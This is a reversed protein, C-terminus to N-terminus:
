GVRVRALSIGSALLSIVASISFFIAVGYIDGTVSNRWFPIGAILCAGFGAPTKPYFASWQWVATNTILFFMTSGIVSAGVFPALIAVWWVNWRASINQAAGGLLIFFLTMLYVAIMIQWAYFGLQVDTILLVALVLLVALRKGLFYGTWLAFAGLPVVNPLHGADLRILLVLSAFVLGVFIWIKKV